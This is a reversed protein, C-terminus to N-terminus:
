AYQAQKVRESHLDSPEQNSKAIDSSIPKVNARERAKTIKEIPDGSEGLEFKDTFMRVHRGLLELGKAAGKSDFNWIANGADDRVPGMSKTEYDWKIVPTKQMCREVLEILHEIVWNQDLQMREARKKMEDAIATIVFEDLMWRNTTGPAVGVAKAARAVNLDKVYEAAFLLQRQRSKATKAENNLGKNLSDKLRETKAQKVLEPDKPIRKRPM